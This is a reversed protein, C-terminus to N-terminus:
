ILRHVLYLSWIKLFNWRIKTENKIFVNTPVIVCLWSYLCRCMILSVYVLCMILKKLFIKKRSPFIDRFANFSCKQGLLVRIFISKHWKWIDQLSSEFIWIWSVSVLCLNLIRLFFNLLLMFVNKMLWFHLKLAKRSM